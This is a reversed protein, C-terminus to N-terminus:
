YCNYAISLINFNFKKDIYFKDIINQNKIKKFRSKNNKRINKKLLKIIKM